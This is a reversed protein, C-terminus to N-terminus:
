EITGSITGNLNCMFGGRVRISSNQISKDIIDFGISIDDESLSVKNGKISGIKINNEYLNCNDDQTLKISFSEINTGTPSGGCIGTVRTSNFNYKYEANICEPYYQKIYTNMHNLAEEQSKLIFTQKSLSAIENLLTQLELEDNITLNSLSLEHLFKPIRIKEDLGNEDLSQILRAINISKTSIESILVDGTITLPTVINQGITEGLIFNGISFQVKEGAKYKFTGNEDTFGSQTQTSYKLGEVPADIFSGSLITDSSNGSGGGSGGGCGLLFGVTITIFILTNFIKM